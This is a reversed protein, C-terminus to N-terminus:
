MLRGCPNRSSSITSTTKLRVLQPAVHVANEERQLREADESRQDAHDEAYEESRDGTRLAVSPM